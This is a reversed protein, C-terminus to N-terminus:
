GGYANIGVHQSPKAPLTATILRAQVVDQSLSHQRLRTGLALVSAAAHVREQAGDADFRVRDRSFAISNRRWGNGIEEVQHLAAYLKGNGAGDDIRARAEAFATGNNVGLPQELLLARGKRDQAHSDLM